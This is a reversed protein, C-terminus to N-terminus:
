DTGLCKYALCITKADVIRGDAIMAHVEDKKVKVVEILEDPDPSFESSPSLGRAEYLYIVENTYGPTTYIFGKDILEEAKFGTEEILERHATEPPKEGEDMTGAPAEYIYKEIPYRYQRILYCYDDEVPLMAVAGGPKVVIRELTIGGPLDIEVQEVKMRGGDYINSIKKM